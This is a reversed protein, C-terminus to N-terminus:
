TSDFFSTQHNLIRAGHYLIGGKYILQVALSSEFPLAQMQLHNIVINNSDNLWVHWSDRM